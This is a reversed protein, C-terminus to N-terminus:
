RSISMIIKQITYHLGYVTQCGELGLKRLFIDVLEDVQEATPQEHERWSFVYHNVPMKSYVTETALSIMEARQANHTGSLFNLGGSHEIKEAPNTNHPQRIYDVMDAIQQTKPKTANKNRFKKVIM